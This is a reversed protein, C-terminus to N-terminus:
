KIIKYGLVWNQCQSPPFSHNSFTNNYNIYSIDGIKDYTYNYNSYNCNNSYYMNYKIPKHDRTLELIVIYYLNPLNFYVYIPLNSIYGNYIKTDDNVINNISFNMIKKLKPFLYKTRFLM